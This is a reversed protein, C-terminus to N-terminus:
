ETYLIKRLLLGHAPATPLHQLPNKEALAQQISAPNGDTHSAVELAAGVMRRIMYRLFGPGRVSIRYWQYAPMYTVDIANVTRITSTQEDGTCFSRFDHTGVFVQLCQELLDINIPFRYYLGYRAYFPLPKHTFFHYFYTKELVNAQSHFNEPAQDLSRILVDKPLHQNWVKQIYEPELPLDTKFNAVQGAAHVGADTRSAGIITIEKNFVAKFSYELTGAITAAEPQRQWGHYDTGDYAIILCYNKM